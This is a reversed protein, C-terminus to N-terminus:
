RPWPPIWHCTITLVHRLKSRFTFPLCLPLPWRIVHWQLCLPTTSTYSDENRVEANSPPPHDTGCGLVRQTAPQLAGWPQDAHTHLLIFIKGWVPIRVGFWGAGYHILTVKFTYYLAHVPTAISLAAMSDCNSEKWPFSVERKHSIM